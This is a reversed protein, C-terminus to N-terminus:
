GDPSEHRRWHGLAHGDYAPRLQPNDQWDSFFTRIPTSEFLHEVIAHAICNKTEPAGATYREALRSKITEFYTKDRDADGTWVVWGVVDWGASYASNAWASEPDTNLCCAYYRLRFVFIPDFAPAPTARGAHEAKSLFVYTAGLTDADESEM